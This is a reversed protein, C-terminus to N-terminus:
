NNKFGEHIWTRLKFLDCDSLSGGEPMHMPNNQPLLLREEFRGSRIRDAVVEYTSYNYNSNGGSHCPSCNVELIPKINESYSFSGSDCGTPKALDLQQIDKTCGEFFIFVISFLFCRLNMM